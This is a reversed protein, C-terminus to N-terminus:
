CHPLRDLLQALGADGVTTEVLAAGFLSDLVNQGSEFSQACHRRLIRHNGLAEEILSSAHLEHDM